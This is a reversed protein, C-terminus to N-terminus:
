SMDLNYNSSYMNNKIYRIDIQSHISYLFPGLRTHIIYSQSESHSLVFELSVFEARFRFERPRFDVAFLSSGSKVSQSGM